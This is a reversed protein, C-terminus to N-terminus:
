VYVQAGGEGMHEGEESKGLNNNNNSCFHAIIHFQRGATTLDLAHRCM